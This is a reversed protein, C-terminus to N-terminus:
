RRDFDDMIEKARSSIEANKNSEAARIAVLVKDEHTFKNLFSLSLEQLEPFGGELAAILADVHNGNVRGFVVQQTLDRTHQDHDGLLHYFPLMDPDGEINGYRIAIENRLQESLSNLIDKVDPLTQLNSM